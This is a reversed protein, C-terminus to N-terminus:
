RTPSAPGSRVVEDEAAHHRETAIPVEHWVIAEEHSERAAIHHDSKQGLQWRHRSRVDSLAQVYANQVDTMLEACTM